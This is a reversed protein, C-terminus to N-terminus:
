DLETVSVNTETRASWDGMPEDPDDPYLPSDPPTPTLTGARPNVLGEVYTRFTMVSRVLTRKDGDIFEPGPASVPETVSAIGGLDGHQAITAHVATAIHGALIRSEDESETNVIVAIDVEFWQSCGSTNQDIEGTPKVVAIINPLCHGDWSDFDIGGKYAHRGPPALLTDRPVGLRRELVKLMFPVWAELLDLVAFEVQPQGTIPGFVADTLTM